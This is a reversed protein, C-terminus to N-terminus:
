NKAPINKNSANLYNEIPRRTIFYGEDTKIIRGSTSIYVSSDKLNLKLHYNRSAKLVLEYHNKNIYRKVLHKISDKNTILHHSLTDNGHWVEVSQVEKYNIKFKRFPNYITCASLFVICLVVLLKKM